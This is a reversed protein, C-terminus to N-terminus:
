RPWQLLDCVEAFFEDPADPYNTSRITAPFFETVNAPQIDLIGGNGGNAMDAYRERTKILLQTGPMMMEMDRMHMVVIPVVEKWNSENVLVKVM